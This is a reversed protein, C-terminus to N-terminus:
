HKWSEKRNLKEFKNELTPAESPPESTFVSKFFDNLINAKDENKDPKKKRSPTKQTQLEGIGAKIKSRKNNYQWILKPNTKAEKTINWTHMNDKLRYGMASFTFNLEERM